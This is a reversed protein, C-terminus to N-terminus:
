SLHSGGNGGGGDHLPKSRFCLVKNPEVTCVVVPHQRGTTILPPENKKNRKERLSNYGISLVCLDFVWKWEFNWKIGKWWIPSFGRENVFYIIKTTTKKRNVVFSSALWSGAIFIRTWSTGVSISLLRWRPKIENSLTSFNMQSFLFAEGLYLVTRRHRLYHAANPSITAMYWVGAM